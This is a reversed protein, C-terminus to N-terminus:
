ATLHGLILLISLVSRPDLGQRVDAPWRRDIIVAIDYVGDHPHIVIDIRHM